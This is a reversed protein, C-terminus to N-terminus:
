SVIQLKTASTVPKDMVVCSMIHKEIKNLAVRLDDLSVQIYVAATVDRTTLSHNLLRKTTYPSVGVRNAASACTRRLDHCTVAKGCARAIGGRVKRVRAETIAPFVLGSADKPRLPLCGRIGNTLPLTHPRGNKTTPIVLAGGVEDIDEWRIGAAESYRLGSFLLLRLFLKVDGAVTETARWWADMYADEIHVTRADVKNWLAKRGTRRASLVKIPNRMPPADEDDEYLGDHHHSIAASLIRMAGDAAAPSRQSHLHHVLKVLAGPIEQIPLDLLRAAEEGAHTQMQNVARRATIKSSEKLRGLEDKLYTDVAQRLTVTAAKAAAAAIREEEEVVRPDKGAKLLAIKQRAIERIKEIEAPLDQQNEDITGLRIRVVKDVGKVRKFVEFAKGGNRGCVVQFGPPNNDRLVTWRENPKTPPTM